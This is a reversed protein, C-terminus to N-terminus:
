SVYHLRMMYSIYQIHISLRRGSYKKVISGRELLVRTILFSKYSDKRLKQVWSILFGREFANTDQNLTNLIVASISHNTQQSVPNRATQIQWRPCYPRLFVPHQALNWRRTRLPIFLNRGHCKVKKAGFSSVCVYSANSNRSHQWITVSTISSQLRIEKRYKGMCMCNINAVFAAVISPPVRTPCSTSILVM